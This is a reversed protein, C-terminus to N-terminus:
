RAQCGTCVSSDLVNEVTLWKGDWELGGSEELNSIFYGGLVTSDKLSIELMDEIEDKTRPTTCFRLIKIYIEAFEPESSLMNELGSVHNLKELASRGEKSVQWLKKDAGSQDAILAECDILWSVITAPPQILCINKALIGAQRVLEDFTRATEAFQLLGCMIMKSAHELQIREVIASIKAQDTEPLSASEM